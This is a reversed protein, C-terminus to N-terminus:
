LKANVHASTSRIYRWFRFTKQGTKTLRLGEHEKVLMALYVAFELTVVGLYFWQPWRRRM